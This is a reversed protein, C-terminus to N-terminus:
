TTDGETLAPVDSGDGLNDDGLEDDENDGGLDVSAAWEQSARGSAVWNGSQALLVEAQEPTVEVVECFDVRLGILPVDLQGFPSRNRIKVTDM